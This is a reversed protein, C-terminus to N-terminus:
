HASLLGRSAPLGPNRPLQARVFRRCRIAYAFVLRGLQRPESTMGDNLRVEGSDTTRGITPRGGAPIDRLATAGLAAYEMKPEAPLWQLLPECQRLNIAPSVDPRLAPPHQIRSAILWQPGPPPPPPPPM